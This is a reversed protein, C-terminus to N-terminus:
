EIFRIYGNDIYFQYEPKFCEYIKNVVQTIKPTKADVMERIYIYLAKKHFIDINERKRFLELVADAIKADDKIPHFNYINDTYYQTFVDIFFSLNDEEESFEFIDDESLKELNDRNTSTKYDKEYGMVEGISTSTIKKKYNKRNYVILWRLAITGFFSYAKKGLTPNFRHIKSLLFIIVEHQLHELDDVDTNRIRYTHILNQTLKFFAYHIKKSYLKSKEESNTLVNYLIIANETEETFYRKGM